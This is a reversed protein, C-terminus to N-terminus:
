KIKILYIWKKTKDCYSKIWQKKSKYNITKGCHKCKYKAMILEKLNQLM